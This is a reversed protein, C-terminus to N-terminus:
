LLHTPTLHSKWLPFHANLSHHPRLSLRIFSLQPNNQNTFGLSHIDCAIYCIVRYSQISFCFCPCPCSPSLSLPLSCLLSPCLPPFPSSSSTCLPFSASLFLAYSPSCCHRSPCLCLVCVPSRKFLFPCPRAKKYSARKSGESHFHTPDSRYTPMFFPFFPKHLAAHYCTHNSFHPHTCLFLTM